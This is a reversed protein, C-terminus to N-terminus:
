SWSQDVIRIHVMLESMSQQEVQRQYRDKHHWETCEAIDVLRYNIAFFVHRAMTVAHGHIM